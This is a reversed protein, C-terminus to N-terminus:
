VYGDPCELNRHGIKTFVGDEGDVVSVGADADGRGIFETDARVGDFGDVAAGGLDDGADKFEDGLTFDLGDDEAEGEAHIAGFAGGRGFDALEALLEALLEVGDGEGVEVFAEGGDAGGFFEVLGAFVGFFLLGEDVM